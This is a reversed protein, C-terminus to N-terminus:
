TSKWLWKRIEVSCETQREAWPVHCKLLKWTKGKWIMHFTELYGFADNNFTLLSRSKNLRWDWMVAVHLYILARRPREANPCNRMPTNEISWSPSCSAMTSHKSKDLDRVAGNSATWRNIHSDALKHTAHWLDLINNCKESVWPARENTWKETEVTYIGCTCKRIGTTTNERNIM